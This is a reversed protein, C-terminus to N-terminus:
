PSPNLWAAAPSTIVIESAVTDHCMWSAFFRSFTSIREAPSTHGHDVLAFEAPQVIKGCRLRAGLCLYPRQMRRHCSEVRLFFNCRRGM